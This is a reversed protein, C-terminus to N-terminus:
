LGAKAKEIIGKDFRDREWRDKLQDFAIVFNEAEMRLETNWDQENIKKCFRDRASSLYEGFETKEIM